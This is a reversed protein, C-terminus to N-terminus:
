CFYCHIQLMKFGGNINDPLGNEEQMIYLKTGVNSHSPSVNSEIVGSQLNQKLTFPNDTAAKFNDNVDGSIANSKLTSVPTM